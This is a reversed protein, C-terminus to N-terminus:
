GPFRRSGPARVALTAKKLGDGIHVLGPGIGVDPQNEFVEAQVLCRFASKGPCPFPPPFQGAGAPPVFQQLRPRLWAAHAAPMIHHNRPQLRASRRRNPIQARDRVPGPIKPGRPPRRTRGPGIRQVVTSARTQGGSQHRVPGQGQGGQDRVMHGRRRQLRIWRVEAPPKEEAPGFGGRRPDSGLIEATAVSGPRSRGADEAFTRHPPSRRYTWAPLGDDRGHARPIEQGVHARFAQHDGGPVPGVDDQGGQGGPHGPGKGM